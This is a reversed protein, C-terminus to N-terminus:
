KCVESSARLIRCQPPQSAPMCDIRHQLAQLEGSPDLSLASPLNVKTQWRNARHIIILDKQKYEPSIM